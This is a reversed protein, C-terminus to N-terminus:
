GDGVAVFQTAKLLVSEATSEEPTLMRLNLV